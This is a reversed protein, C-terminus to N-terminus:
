GTVAVTMPAIRLWVRERTVVPQGSAMRNVIRLTAPVRRVGARRLASYTAPALRVTHLRKRGAAIEVGRFRALVRVRSAQERTRREAQVSAPLTLSLAGSADCIGIVGSPCQLPLGVKGDASVPLGATALSDPITVGLAKSPPGAPPTTGATASSSASTSNSTPVLNFTATVSQAAGMTVVCTGTGSCGGGTWGAFVMGPPATATLTVTSGEAFSASCSTGCDIGAPSSTVVGSGAGGPTITLTRQPPLTWATSIATQSASPWVATMLNGPGGAIAPVVGLAPTTNANSVVVAPDYTNAGPPRTRSAIAFDSSGTQDVEYAATVSGDAASSIQAVPAGFSTGGPTALQIPADFATSGVPLASAYLDGAAWVVHVNGSADIAVDPATGSATATRPSGFSTAPGPPRVVAFVENSTGQSVLAMTGDAGAALATVYNQAGVITQATGWSTTGAPRVVVRASPGTIYWAVATTGDPTMAILPRLARLAVPVSLGSLEEATGFTSQGAARTAAYVGGNSGNWAVTVTGDTSAAIVPWSSPSSQFSGAAVFSSTGPTRAAVRIYFNDRWAVLTTGDGAVAISAYAGADNMTSLSTTPGVNVPAGFAAEGLARTSATLQGTSGSNTLWVATTTGDPATAVDATYCGYMSNTCSQGPAIEVGPTWAVASAVTPIVAVVTFATALLVPVALRAQRLTRSM